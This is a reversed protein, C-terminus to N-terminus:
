REDGDGKIKNEELRKKLKDLNMQAVDDLYADVATACEALYWLCDGLEKLFGERNFEADGRIYKKVKDAVEGAESCLGITCYELTKDPPYKRFKTLERQYGNLSMVTPLVALPKKDVVGSGSM